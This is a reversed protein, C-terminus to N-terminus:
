NYIRDLYYNPVAGEILKIIIPVDTSIKTNKSVFPLLIKVEVEININVKILANNIGYDKVDTNLKCFTNGILNIKVPIKPMVNNLIINNFIIGSPIEYIIGKKNISINQLNLKDVEGKEIYRINQDILKSTDSLLKTVKSSDFDISKINNDSTKTTKFLDEEYTNKSINEIVTANIISSVIKKTEIESYSLLQPIVKKNFIKLLYIVSIGLLIILLIIINIIKKKKKKKFNMRKM